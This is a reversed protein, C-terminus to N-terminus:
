VAACCSAYLPQPWMNVDIGSCYDPSEAFANGRLELNAHLLVIQMVNSQTRILWM